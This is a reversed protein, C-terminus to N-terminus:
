SRRAWVSARSPYNQNQLCCLTGDMFSSKAQSGTQGHQGDQGTMKSLKTNCSPEDAGWLYESGQSSTGATSSNGKSRGLFRCIEISKVLKQVTSTSLIRHGAQILRSNLECPDANNGKAGTRTYSSLFRSIRLSLPPAQSAFQFLCRALPSRAILTPRPHPISSRLFLAPSISQASMSHSHCPFVSLSFSLLLYM